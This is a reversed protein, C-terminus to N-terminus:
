YSFCTKKIAFNWESLLDNLIICENNSLHCTFSLVINDGQTEKSNREANRAKSDEPWTNLLLLFSYIWRVWNARKLTIQFIKM